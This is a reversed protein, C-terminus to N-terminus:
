GVGESVVLHCADPRASSLDRGPAPLGGWSLRTVRGDGRGVARVQSRAPGAMLLVKDFPAVLAQIAKDPGERVLSPLEAMTEILNIHGAAILDRISQTIEAYDVVQDLKDDIKVADEVALDVNIRVPQVKGYEHTYIGIQAHVELNRIFVHRIARASDAIRLPQVNPAKTM